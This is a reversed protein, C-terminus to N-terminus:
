DLNEIAAIYWSDARKVLKIKRKVFGNVNRKAETLELEYAFIADVVAANGDLKIDVNEHRAKLLRVNQNFFDKIQDSIETRLRTQEPDILEALDSAKGGIFHRDFSEIRLAIIKRTLVDRAKAMMVKAKNNDPDCNKLLNDLKSIATEPDGAELAFDAENLLTEITCRREKDEELLKEVRALNESDKKSEPVLTILEKLNAVASDYDKRAEAQSASELLERAKIVSGLVTNADENAGDIALASKASSEAQPIDGSKLFEGADAILKKLRQSAKLKERADALVRFAQSAKEYDEPLRSLTEVVKEWQEDRFYKMGLSYIDDLEKGRELNKNCLAILDQVDRYSPIENEVRKLEPLAESYKEQEALAKGREYAAKLESTLEFVMKTENLPPVAGEEALEITLNCPRYGRREFELVYTGVPYEIDEFPLGRAKERPEGAPRIYVTRVDAPLAARLPSLRLPGKKTEPTVEPTESSTNGNGSANDINSPQETNNDPVQVVIPTAPERGSLTVILVIVVVVAVILGAVIGAVLSKSMNAQVGEAPTQTAAGMGPMSTDIELTKPFASEGVPAATMSATPAAGTEFADLDALLETPNNYRDVPKKEIMKLVISELHKPIDPNIECLSRPEEYIHQYIVATPTDAQFPVIGTLLEYFVIGLSYMDSRVDLDEGKGQEPSMYPPTGMIMGTQTISTRVKAAKALGFDMVKVSDDSDIMMNSPKIDRHVMGKRHACELAKTVDRIIAVSRQLDYQEGKKLKVALDEGDVYEMAFYPVGKEIGFSYIQIVNPHILSAASKAERKFRARFTEDKALEKPLVKVAVQRDLSEQKALFVQGMGGKGIRRELVYEGLKVAV